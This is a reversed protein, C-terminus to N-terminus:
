SRKGLLTCATSAHTRTVLFLTHLQNLESAARADDSATLSLLQQHLSNNAQTDKSEPSWFQVFLVQANETENIKNLVMLM